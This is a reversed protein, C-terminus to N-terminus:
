RAPHPLGSPHHRRPQHRRTGPTHPHRAQRQVIQTDVLDVIELRDEETM